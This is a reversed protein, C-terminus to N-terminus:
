PISDTGSDPTGQMLCFVGKDIGGNSVSSSGHEVVTTLYSWAWQLVVILRHEFGTLYYIHVALWVNWAFIRQIQIFRNRRDGQFPRDDGNRKDLFPVTSPNAEGSRL